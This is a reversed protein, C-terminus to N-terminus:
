AAAHDVSIRSRLAAVAGRGSALLAHDVCVAELIEYAPPVHVWGRRRRGAVQVRVVPQFTERHIGDYQHRVISWYLDESVVLVLPALVQRLCKKLRPAELLRCAM